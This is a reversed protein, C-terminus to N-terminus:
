EIRETFVALPVRGRLWRPESGDGADAVAWRVLETSETDIGDAGSGTQTTHQDALVLLGVVSAIGQTAPHRELVAGITSPGLAAITEGVDGRLEDFDIETARALLRLQAVDLVGDDDHEVVDTSTILDGPDHLTLAGVSRIGVSTRELDYGTTSYPRVTSSLPAAEALSDRLLRRIVRDRQYEQSQVFRRLGRAFTTMVGHVEGSREQLTRLLSRLFRKEEPSLSAAFPRELVQEISDHFSDSVEPDLVLSYFAKFSHGADSEQLLDVGRFIDQLVHAQADDDEVIRLRLDRNIKELDARVRAFDDPLERALDVIDQARERAERSGLVSVDGTRVRAIEADIRDREAHLTALRTSGNPDTDRSLDALQTAITALRSQTVTSRPEVLQRIYRIASFAAPSLEFTETRSDDTPRRILIGAKRWGSCYSQGTGPLDLDHDRLDDLDADVLEFLDAATVRRQDGGLHTDLIAVAVPANPSRLLAWAASDQHLRSLAFAASRVSVPDAERNEQCDTPAYDM